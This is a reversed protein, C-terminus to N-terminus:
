RFVSPSDAQWFVALVALPNPRPAAPTNGIRVRDFHRADTVKRPSMTRRSRKTVGAPPDPHGRLTLSARCYTGFCFASVFSFALPPPNDYKM